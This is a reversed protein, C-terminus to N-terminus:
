CFNLHMLPVIKFACIGCKIITQDPEKNKCQCDLVFKKAKRKSLFDLVRILMKHTATIIKKLIISYNFKFYCLILKNETIYKRMRIQSELKIVKLVLTELEVDIDKKSYDSDNVELSKEVDYLVLILKDYQSLYFRELSKQHEKVYARISCLTKKYDMQKWYKWYRYYEKVNISNIPNGDTNRILFTAVTSAPFGRVYYPRLIHSIKPNPRWTQAYYTM